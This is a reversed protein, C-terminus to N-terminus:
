EVLPRGFLAEPAPTPDLSPSPQARVPAAAALVLASFVLRLAKWYNQGPRSMSAVRSSSGVSHGMMQIPFRSQHGQPPQRIQRISHHPLGPLNDEASSSKPM